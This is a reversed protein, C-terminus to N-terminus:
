PEDCEEIALICIADVTKLDVTRSTEARGACDAIEFQLRLNPRVSVDFGGVRVGTTKLDLTPVSAVIALNAAATLECLRQRTLSGDVPGFHADCRVRSQVIQQLKGDAFSLDM